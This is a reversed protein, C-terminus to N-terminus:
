YGAACGIVLAAAPRDGHVPIAAASPATSFATTGGVAYLRDGRVAWLGPELGAPEDAYTIAAAVYTIDGDRAQASVSLDTRAPLTKRIKGLLADDADVCGDLKPIDFPPAQPDADPGSESWGPRGGPGAGSDQGDGTFASVLLAVVLVVGIIFGGIVLAPVLWAPRETNM